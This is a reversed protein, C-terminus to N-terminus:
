VSGDALVVRSQDISLLQDFEGVVLMTVGPAPIETNFLAQITTTGNRVLEFGGNDELTSSLPVIFFTWGDQFQSLSIGNTQNETPVTFNHMDVFARMFNKDNGTFKMVYPHTPYTLGGANVSIEKIDFPKFKFPSLTKNGKYASSNVLAIILRRPIINTFANFTVESRGVTLYCSRIETKRLSYKASSSQLRNLVAINLSGQVDITKVYMKMSTLHVRYENDDNEKLTQVMFDDDAKYITFHLDLNNLLYQSQNALDFDLRSMVEFKKSLSALNTRATFGPSTAEDQKNDLYYGSAALESDKVAKSYSLENKIYSLFPYLNTSDYVETNNISVKLQRIFSHGIAQIPAVNTDAAVLSVWDNGSKKQIQLKCYQPNIFIDEVIEGPSGKVKAIRLLPSYKDGVTTHEVLNPAYIYLTHVGGMLDPMYKAKHFGTNMVEEHFGLSYQLQDSLKVHEIVSMNITLTFRESDKDYSLVIYEPIKRFDEDEVEECEANKSKDETVAIRMQSLLRAFAAERVKELDELSHTPTPTVIEPSIEEHPATAEPILQPQAITPPPTLERAQPIENERAPEKIQEPPENAVTEPTPQAAPQVDPEHQAPSIETSTQAPMTFADTETSITLTTELEKQKDEAEKRYSDYKAQRSAYEKIRNSGLREEIRDMLSLLSNYNNVVIRRDQILPMRQERPLKLINDAKEKMDDRAKRMEVDKERLQKFLYAAQLITLGTAPATQVAERKSRKKVNCLKNGAQKMANILGTAMEAVNSYTSSPIPLRTLKGNKWKIEMYQASETGLTTWSYPYIIGTLAVTWTSHFELKKPLQVTFSATYNGANKTNSPLYIYFSSSM